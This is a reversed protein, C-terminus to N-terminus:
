MQQQECYINCKNGRSVVIIAESQQHLAHSVQQMLRIGRHHLLQILKTSQTGLQHVIITVVLLTTQHPIIIITIAVKGTTWVLPM